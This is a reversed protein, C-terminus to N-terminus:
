LFFSIKIHNWSSRLNSYFKWPQNWFTFAESIEQRLSQHVLEITNYNHWSGDGVSIQCLKQTNAPHELLQEFM